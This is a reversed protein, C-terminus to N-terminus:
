RGAHIHLRALLSTHFVSGDAESVIFCGFPGILKRLQNGASVPKDPM